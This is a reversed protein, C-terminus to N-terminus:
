QVLGQARLASMASTFHSSWQPFNSVYNSDLCRYLYTSPLQYNHFIAKFGPNTWDNAPPNVYYRIANSLHSFDMVGTSTLQGNWYYDLHDEMWIMTESELTLLSLQSIPAWPNPTNEAVLLNNNSSYNNGSYDSSSSKSASFQSLSKAMQLSVATKCLNSPKLGKFPNSLTPISMLGALHDLTLWPNVYSTVRSAEGVICSANIKLVTGPHTGKCNPINTPCTDTGQIPPCYPDSSVSTTASTLALNNDIQSVTPTPATVCTNLTPDGKTGYLNYYQNSACRPVLSISTGNFMTQPSRPRLWVGTTSFLLAHMDVYKQFVSNTGPPLTTTPSLIINLTIGAPNVLTTNSGSTHPNVTQAVVQGKTQAVAAVNSNADVNYVSDANDINLDTNLDLNVNTAVSNTSSGTYYWAFAVVAIIIVTIAVIIIISNKKM